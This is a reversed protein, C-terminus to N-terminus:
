VAEWLSPRQYRGRSVRPSRKVKLLGRSGVERRVLGARAGSYAAPDPQPAAPWRECAPVPLMQFTDRADFRREPFNAAMPWAGCQPCKVLLSDTEIM